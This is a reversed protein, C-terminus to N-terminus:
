YLSYGVCSYRLTYRPPDGRVCGVSHAVTDPCRVSAHFSSVSNRHRRWARALQVFLKASCGTHDPVADPSDFAPDYEARFSPPVDV